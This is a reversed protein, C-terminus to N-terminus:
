DSLFNLLGQANLYKGKPFLSLLQTGRLAAPLQLSLYRKPGQRNMCSLCGCLFDVSSVLLESFTNTETQRLYHPSLHSHLTKKTAQIFSIKKLLLSIEKGRGRGGFIQPHLECPHPHNLSGM